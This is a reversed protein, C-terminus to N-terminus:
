EPKQKVLLMFSKPIPSEFSLETKTVPHKFSLKQAHLGLRSIPSKGGGYKKDGIISHGNEKMHIRIQNKRGTDLRIELLSFDDNQKLVRFHTVARVGDKPDNESFMTLAKSEKLWSEITGEKQKVRGEVLAVYNRETIINQWGKQLLEQTEQNRAFMMVGSTERDLRHVVFIKNYPNEIKVHRSLISYATKDKERDTAISLLGAQKDIVLIYQDEHLIKLGHLQVVGHVIGKFIGVEQGHKLPYDFQTVPKGDVYVQNHALMSKTKNRSLGKARLLLFALLGMAEDVKYIQSGDKNGKDTRAQVTTHKKTQRSFLYTPL